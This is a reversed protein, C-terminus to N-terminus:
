LGYKNVYAGYSLGEQRAKISIETISNCTKTPKKHKLNYNYNEACKKSCYKRKRVSEFTEGCFKCVLKKPKGKEKKNYDERCQMSCFKKASTAKDFERQCFACIGKGYNKKAM